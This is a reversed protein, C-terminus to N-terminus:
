TRVTAGLTITTLPPDLEPLVLMTSCTYPMRASGHSAALM